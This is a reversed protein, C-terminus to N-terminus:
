KPEAALIKQYFAKVDNWKYYPAIDSKIPIMTEHENLLIKVLDPANEKRYFVFQINAAKPCIESNRWNDALEEPNNTVLGYNNLHLLCVLPILATDHGFRLTVNKNKTALCTDATNIINKLLNSQSYPQIGHNQPSFGYSLYDSFNELLYCEYCENKTFYKFLDFPAETNPIINALEFLQTMLNETNINHRVYNSDNFISNILHRPHCHKKKFPLFAKMYPKSKYFNFKSADHYNLYYLNHKSADTTLTMQPNLAKLMWCENMMSLACRMIPTSRANIHVNDEFIEPFNHFMRTAIGRHQLAGLLTLEGIRDKSERYLSDVISLIEKGTPTLMGLSDAKALTTYPTSYGASHWHFRSGHRMYTSIYIPKYGKPVQSYKVGVPESYLCHAGGGINPNADILKRITQAFLTYSCLYLVLFVFIKKM